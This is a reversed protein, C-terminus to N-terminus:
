EIVTRMEENDTYDAFLESGDPANGFVLLACGVRTGDLRRILWRCEDLGESANVIARISSARRVAWCEGDHVSITMGSKIAREAVKRMASQESM